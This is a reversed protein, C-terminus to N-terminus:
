NFEQRPALRYRKWQDKGQGTSANYQALSDAFFYTNSLDCFDTSMDKPQSMPYQVGNNTQIQANMDCCAAILLSFLITKKM